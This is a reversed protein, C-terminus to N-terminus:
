RKEDNNLLKKLPAWRQDGETKVCDCPGNNLNSGCGPCLGKCDESCLFRMPLELIVAERDGSFSRPTVDNTYFSLRHSNDGGDM